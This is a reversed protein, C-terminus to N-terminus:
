GGRRALVKGTEDTLLSITEGDKNVLGIYYYLKDDRILRLHIEGLFVNTGYSSILESENAELAKLILDTNDTENVRKAEVTFAGVQFTVSEEWLDLTCSYAYVGSVTDYSLEGGYTKDNVTFSLKPSDVKEELIVTVEFLTSLEGVLGDANYPYERKVSAAKIKCGATEGEYLAYRNESLYKTLRSQDSCGFLFLLPLLFCFLLKKM